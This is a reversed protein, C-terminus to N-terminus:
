CTAQLQENKSKNIFTMREASGTFTAGIDCLRSASILNVSIDPYYLTDPLIMYQKKNNEDFSEVVVDSSHKAILNCSGDATKISVPPTPHLNLFQKLSHFIFRDAGSDSVM